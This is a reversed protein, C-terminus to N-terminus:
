MKVEGEKVLTRARALFGQSAQMNYMNQQGVARSQFTAVQSFSPQTSIGAHSLETETMTKKQIREPGAIADVCPHFPPAGQIYANMIVSNFMADAPVPKEITRSVCVPVPLERYKAEIRPCLFEQVIELEVPVPVNRDVIREVPKPLYHTLPIEVPKPIHRYQPQMVNRYLHQVHPVEVIEKVPSARNVYKGEVLDLKPQNALAYAEKIGEESMAIENEPGESNLIKEFEEAPVEIIKEEVVRRPIPIVREQLMIKPREIIKEQPIYQIVEEVSDIIQTQPVEITKEEKVYKPIEVLREILEMKPVPVTKEIQVQRPVEEIKEVYQIHPIEVQVEHIRPVPVEVVRDRRIPPLDLRPITPPPNPIPVNDVPVPMDTRPPVMHFGLRALHEEHNSM